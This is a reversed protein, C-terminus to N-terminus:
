YDAIKTHTISSILVVHLVDHTLCHHSTCDCYMKPQLVHGHRYSNRFVTPPLVNYTIYLPFKCAHANGSYYQLRNHGGCSLGINVFDNEEVLLCIYHPIYAKYSKYIRLM